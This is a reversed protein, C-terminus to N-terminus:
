LPQEGTELKSIEDLDNVLLVMREVNKHAKTLFKASISGEELEPLVTEIYSQIAFIPTKFEHSLNQLFERRYAENKQMLELENGHQAAWAEVDDSVEEISKQPLIYKYYAEARKSAKTNYILKYIIKIKRYVFWNFVFKIFFFISALLVAFSIVAILWDKVLLEIAIAVVVSILLASLFSLYSISLNKTRFM